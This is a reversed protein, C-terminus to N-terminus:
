SCTHDSRADLRKQRWRLLTLVVLAGLVDAILDYWDFFRGPVFHQLYEDSVAFVSLFLASLWFAIGVTVAQGLNSFSRYTVAAFVAYEVFHALKDFPVLKVEPARLDPISSVVIIVAACVVVPLHYWLLSRWSRGSRTSKEMSVHTFM